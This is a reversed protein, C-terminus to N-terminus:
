IKGSELMATAPFLMVLLVLRFAMQRVRIAKKIIEVGHEFSKTQQYSNLTLSQGVKLISM